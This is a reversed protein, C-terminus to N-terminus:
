NLTNKYIYGDQIIMRINDKNELIKVDQTPDGDVLLIDALYGPQIKGVPLDMLQGGINTACYLTEIPTFGLWEVFYTLDKANTGHPTPPFGYDGGIVIRVDPDLSHIKKYTEATVFAKKDPKGCEWDFGGTILFALAPSIFIKSKRKILESISADDAYECHFIVDIDYELAIRVSDSGRCHAAIKVGGARCVEVAAAVEERTFTSKVDNGDQSYEEGSINLKITDVGEKIMLSVARRVEEPGKCPYGFTNSEHLGNVMGDGLGGPSTLEPGAAKIRPGPIRGSNVENRIAVDLRVKASAGSFVSTFGSDLLLKANHMTILTHEEPPINFEFSDPFTLHSHGDVLGPMLTRGKGDIKIGNPVKDDFQGVDGISDIKNGCLLIDKVSTSRNDRTGAWVYVNKILKYEDAPIRLKM